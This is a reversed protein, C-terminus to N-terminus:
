TNQAAIQTRHRMPRGSCPQSRGQDSVRDAQDPPASMMIVTAAPIDASTTHCYRLRYPSDNSAPESAASAAFGAIRIRNPM